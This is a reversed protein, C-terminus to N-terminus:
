IALHIVTFEESVEINNIINRFDALSKKAGSRLEELFTNCKDETDKLYYCINKNGNVSLEFTNTEVEM